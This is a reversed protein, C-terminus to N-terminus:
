HYVGSWYTYHKAGLSAIAAKAAFAMDGFVELRNVESIQFLQDLEPSIEDLHKLFADSDRFKETLYWKNDGEHYFWKCSLTDPENYDVIENLKRAIRKFTDLQTDLVTLEIAFKV